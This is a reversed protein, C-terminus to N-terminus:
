NLAGAIVLAVSLFIAAVFIAVAVNGKRLEEPFNVEPTLRDIVRYAFFMLAVGLVAYIFNLAIITLQM